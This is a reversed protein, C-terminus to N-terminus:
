SAGTRSAVGLREPRRGFPSGTCRWSGNSEDAQRRQPLRRHKKRALTVDDGLTTKGSCGSRDSSDESTAGGRPLVGRLPDAILFVADGAATLAIRWVNTCTPLGRWRSTSLGRSTSSRHDARPRAEPPRHPRPAHTLTYSTDVPSPGALQEDNNAPMYVAGPAARARSPLSPSIGVSSVVWTYSYGEPV